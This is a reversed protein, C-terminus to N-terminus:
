DAAEIVRGQVLFAGRHRRRVRFHTAHFLPPEDDEREVEVGYLGEGRVGAAVFDALPLTRYGLNAYSTEAIEWMTILKDIDAAEINRAVAIGTDIYKQVTENSYKAAEETAPKYKVGPHLWQQLIKAISKM